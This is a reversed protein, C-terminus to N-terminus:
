NKAGARIGRRFCAAVGEEREMFIVPFWMIIFPYMFLMIIQMTIQMTKRTNMVNATIEAFIM